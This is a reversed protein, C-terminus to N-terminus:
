FIKTSIYVCKPDDVPESLNRKTSWKANCFFNNKKANHKKNSINSLKNCM